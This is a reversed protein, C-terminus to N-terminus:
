QYSTVACSLTPFTEGEEVIVEPVVRLPLGGEIEEKEKEEVVIVMPEEERREHFMVPVRAVVVMVPLAKFREVLVAEPDIETVGLVV